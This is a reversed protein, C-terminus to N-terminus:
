ILTTKMIIFLGLSNLLSEIKKILSHYNYEVDLNIKNLENWMSIALSDLYEDADAINLHQHIKIM